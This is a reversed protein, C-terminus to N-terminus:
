LIKNLSIFWHWSFHKFYGHSLSMKVRQFNDESFMTDYYKETMVFKRKLNEEGNLNHWEYVIFLTNTIKNKWQLYWSYLNCHLSIPFIKHPERVKKRKKLFGKSHNQACFDVFTGRSRNQKENLHLIPIM